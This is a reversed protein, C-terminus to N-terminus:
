GCTYEIGRRRLIEIKIPPRQDFEPPKRKSPEVRGLTVSKNLWLATSAFIYEDM